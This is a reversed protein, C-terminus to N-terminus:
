GKRKNHIDLYVLPIVTLLCYSILVYMSHDSTDKMAMKALVFSGIIALLLFLRVALITALAGFVPLFTDLASLIHNKVPEPTAMPSVLRPKPLELEEIGV